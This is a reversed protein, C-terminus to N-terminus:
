LTAKEQGSFSIDSHERTGLVWNVTHVHYSGLISVVKDANGGIAFHAGPAEVHEGLWLHTSGSHNVSTNTESDLATHENARCSLRSSTNLCLLATATVEM